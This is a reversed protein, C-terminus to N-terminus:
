LLEAFHEEIFKDLDILVCKNVFISHMLRKIMQSRECATKFDFPEWKLHERRTIYRWNFWVDDIKKVVVVSRNHEFLGLEMVCFEDHEDLFKIAEDKSMPIFSSETDIM